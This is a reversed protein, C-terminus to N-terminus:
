LASGGLPVFAPTGHEVLGTGLVPKNQHHKAYLMALSGPDILCGANMGWVLDHGNCHYQIGAWAHVHGIVVNRRYHRAATLAANPGSFGEGHLYLVGDVEHADAWAWGAPAGLVDRTSRLFARPLGSRAVHRFARDGHNSGCVRVRPFLRYLSRLACVAQSLEDGQGPNDPHRVHRSWGHADIEDGLCVVAQPKFTRRLDALFDVAHPHLFPAHLDSITLVRM